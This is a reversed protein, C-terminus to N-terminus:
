NEQVLRLHMADILAARETETAAIRAKVEQLTSRNSGYFVIGGLIAAIGAVLAIPEGARLLGLVLVALALFGAGIIVKALIKAKRCQEAAQSLEDLSAELDAIQQHFQNM